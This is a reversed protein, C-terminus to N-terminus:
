NLLISGLLLRAGRRGLTRDTERQLTMSIFDANPPQGPTLGLAYPQLATVYASYLRPLYLEVQERLKPDPVDIGVEVTLVGRRGTARVISVAVTQLQLYPQKRKRGGGEGEGEQAWAMSAPLLATAAIAALLLRRRM